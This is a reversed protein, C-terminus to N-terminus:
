FKREFITKEDAIDSAEFFKLKMKLFLIFFKLKEEIKNLCFFSPLPFFNDEDNMEILNKNYQKKIINRKFRNM